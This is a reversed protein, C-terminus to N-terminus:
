NNNLVSKFRKEKLETAEMPSSHDIMNNNENELELFFYHPIPVKCSDNRILRMSPVLSDFIGSSWNRKWM